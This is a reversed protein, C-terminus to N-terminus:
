GISIEVLPSSAVLEDISAQTRYWWTADSTLIRRRLSDDTVATAIAGVDTRDPLHITLHPNAHLNALWSRPGPTGTIVIRGDVLFMWIEIRRAAGTRRGTTTIEVINTRALHEKVSQEPTM